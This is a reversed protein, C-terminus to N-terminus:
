RPQRSEQAGKLTAYLARAFKESGKATFHGHDFFDDPQWAVLAPADILRAGAMRATARLVDSMRTNFAYIGAVPVLPVWQTTYDRIAFGENLVQPVFVPEAGITRSASALLAINRAYIPVLREDFASSVEGRADKLSDKPPDLQGAKVLGWKLLFLTALTARYRKEVDLNSFQELM